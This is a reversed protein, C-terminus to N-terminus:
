STSLSTYSWHAKPELALVADVYSAGWNPYTIEDYLWHATPGLALVAVTYASYTPATLSDYAWHAKPGLALVEDIYEGYAPPPTFVAAIDEASLVEDWAAPHAFSSNPEGGWVVLADHPRVTWGAGTLPHVTGTPQGDIYLRVNAEAGEDGYTVAFSHWGAIPVQDDTGAADDFTYLTGTGGPHKVSLVCRVFGVESTDAIARLEIEGDSGITVMPCDGGPESDFNVFLGVTFGTSFPDLLTGAGIAAADALYGSAVPAPTFGSGCLAATDTEFPGPRPSIFLEREVMPFDTVADEVSGTSPCVELAFVPTPDPPADFTCPEGWDAPEQWDFVIPDGEPAGDCFLHWTLRYWTLPEYEWEPRWSSPLLVNWVGEDLLTVGMTPSLEELRWAWGKPSECEEPPDPIDFDGDDDPDPGTPAEATDASLEM